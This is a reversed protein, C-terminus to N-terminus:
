MEFSLLLTTVAHVGVERLKINFVTRKAWIKKILLKINKIIFVNEKDAM